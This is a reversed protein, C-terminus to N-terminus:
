PEEKENWKVPLGSSKIIEKLIPEDKSEFSTRRDVTLVFLENILNIKNKKSRLSKIEDESFGILLLFCQFASNGIERNNTAMLSHFAIRHFKEPRESIIGLAWFFESRMCNRDLFGKEILNNYISEFCLKTRDRAELDDLQPYYERYKSPLSVQVESGFFGDLNDIRCVPDLSNNNCFDVYLSYANRSYPICKSFIGLVLESKDKIKKLERHLSNLLNEEDSLHCYLRIYDFIYQSNIDSDNDTMLLSIHPEICSLEVTSDISKFRDLLVKCEDFVPKSGLIDEALSFLLNRAVKENIRRNSSDFSEKSTFKLWRVLDLDHIVSYTYLYFAALRLYDSDAIRIGMKFEKRLRSLFAKYEEEAILNDNLSFDYM